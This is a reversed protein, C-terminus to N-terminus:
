DFKVAKYYKNKLVKGAKPGDGGNKVMWKRIDPLYLYYPADYQSQGTSYKEVYDNVTEEAQELTSCLKSMNSDHVLKFDADHDIDLRISLSKVIILLLALSSKLKVFDRANIAERIKNNAANYDCLRLMLNCNSNIEFDHPDDADINLCDCMGYIVYAIDSLADRVETFNDTEVACSLENVEEYILNYRFLVLKHNQAFVDERRIYPDNEYRGLNFREVEFARNFEKVMQFGTHQHIINNFGAM